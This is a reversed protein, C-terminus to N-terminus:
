EEKWISFKKHSRVRRKEIWKIAKNKRTKSPSIYEVHLSIENKNLLTLPHKKDANKQDVISQKKHDYCFEEIGNNESLREVIVTEAQNINPIEVIANSAYMVNDDEYFVGVLIAQYKITSLQEELYIFYRYNSDIVFKERDIRNVVDKIIMCGGLLDAPNVLTIMKGGVFDYDEDFGFEDQSEFIKITYTATEVEANFSVTGDDFVTEKEAIMEDECYLDAFYTGKGVIDLKARIEKTDYDQELVASVLFSKQLVRFLIQEVSNTVLVISELIKSASFYTLMKTIDCDFIGDARKRFAFYAEQRQGEVFLGIQDAPYRLYIIRNLDGHWIDEPKSYTWEKRDWSLLLMPVDFEFQIGDNGDITLIGDKLDSMKFEISHMLSSTESNVSDRVIDHNISLIGEDSFVYPANKFEFELDKFLYYELYLQKQTKPYDIIIRNYGEKIGTLEETSVFYYKKTSVKGAKVDIFKVQSLRNVNGNVIIATGNYESEEIEIVLEPHKGYVKLNKRENDLAIRVGSIISNGSLGPKPIEGVYYNDEGEVCVFEGNRINLEYYSLGYEYGQYQISDSVIRTDPSAFAIVRGEELQLGSMWRGDDKFFQARKNDWVFMRLPTNDAFLLFVYKEFICAGDIIFEIEKTRYGSFGEVLECNIQRQTKSVVFWTVNPLKENDSGPVMQSPLVIHFNGRNFDHVMHPKRYKRIGSSNHLEKQHKKKESKYFKSTEKWEEFRDALRGTLCDDHYEEDWFSCDIMTLSKSIISKCYERDARISMAAYDSLLQQRKAYPNIICKCLYEFDLDQLGSIDRELDIRYYQFLYDFFRKAFSDTIFCHMMVNTVYENKGYVPKGFALLTETVTGGIWNRDNLGISDIESAVCVQPWFNNEYFRIGIQVMAVSFMIDVVPKRYNTKIYLYKKKFYYMLLDFERDSIEIESLLTVQKFERVIRNRLIDLKDKEAREELLVAYRPQIEGRGKLLEKHDTYMDALEKRSLKKVGESSKKGTMKELIEHVAIDYEDIQEVPVTEPDYVPNHEITLVGPIASLMFQATVDNKEADFVRYSDLETQCYEGEDIATIRNSIGTIFFSNENYKFSLNDFEPLEKEKEDYLYTRSEGHLEICIPERRDIVTLRGYECEIDYNKISTNGNPLYTFANETVGPLLQSNSFSFEFGEGDAFGDGTVIVEECILENGDYEKEANRSALRLLRKSVTLAGPFVDIIFQKTVDNNESDFVSIDTIEFPYTGVDIAFQNGYSVSVRFPVDHIKFNDEYTGPSFHMKGDYLVDENKMCCGYRFKDIRDVVELTGFETEVSYDEEHVGQPMKYSFCNKSQGVICQSSEFTITPVECPLFDDGEFYREACELKRGNYEQTVSASLIKVKRPLVTLTGLITTVAFNRTVDNGYCDTVVVTGQEEAPYNGVHIGVAKQTVGFIRYRHSNIEIFRDIKEELIHEQGNYKEIVCKGQVTILFPIQRDTIELLGPEVSIDFQDTVDNGLMDIVIAQGAIKQHVSGVHATARASLGKVVFHSGNIELDTSQFGEITHEDGDYEFNGNIGCIKVQFKNERPLISITGPRLSVHYNASTCENEFQYEITNETNGPLLQEKKLTVLIKDVEAIRDGAIQYEKCSLFAGDYEKEASGSIIEINRKKIELECPNATIKFQDTVDNGYEDKVVPVGCVIGKHMGSDCCAASTSLGEVCFLLGNVEAKYDEFGEVSHEFGDYIFSAKRGYLCVPYKESRNNIEIKGRQESVVYNKSLEENEFSYQMANEMSGVLLRKGVAVASLSEGEILGDGTIVVQSSSLATGDYEKRASGSILVLNRPIIQINVKTEEIRKNRTVQIYCETECVNKYEPKTNSWSRRDVSYRIQCDDLTAVSISHSKGDYKGRYGHVESILYFESPDTVFQPKGESIRTSVKKIWSFIKSEM